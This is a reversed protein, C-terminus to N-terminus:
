NLRILFNLVYSVFGEWGLM